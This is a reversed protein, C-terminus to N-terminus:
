WFQTLDRHLGDRQRLLVVNSSFPSFQATDAPDRRGTQMAFGIRRHDHRAAIGESRQVTARKCSMPARAAALRGSLSAGM